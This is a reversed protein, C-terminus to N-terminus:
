YFSYLMWVSSRWVKWKICEDPFRARSKRQVKVVTHMALQSEPQHLHDGLSSFYCFLCYEWIQHKLTCNRYSDRSGSWFIGTAVHSKTVNVMTMIQLVDFPLHLCVACHFCKSDGCTLTQHSLLAGKLLYLRWNAITHTETTNCLLKWYLVFIFQEYCFWSKMANTIYLRDPKLTYLDKCSKSFAFLFTWVHLSVKKNLNFAVVSLFYVSFHSQTSSYQVLSPQWALDSHWVLPSQHHIPTNKQQKKWVNLCKWVKKQILEIYFGVAVM